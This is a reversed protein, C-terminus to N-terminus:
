GMVEPYQELISKDPSTASPTCGDYPMLLNFSDAGGALWVMVVAKYKRGTKTGDPPARAPRRKLGPQPTHVNTAAFEPSAAFLQQAAFRAGDM